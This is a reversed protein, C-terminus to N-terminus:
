LDANRTTLRKVENNPISSSIKKTAAIPPSNNDLISIQLGMQYDWTFSRWTAPSLAAYLQAVRCTFKTLLGTTM